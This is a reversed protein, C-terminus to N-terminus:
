DGSPQLRQGPSRCNFKAATSFPPSRPSLTLIEESIATWLDICFLGKAETQNGSIEFKLAHTEIRRVRLSVNFSAHEFQGRSLRRRTSQKLVGHELRYSHCIFFKGPKASRAAETQHRTGSKLTGKSVWDPSARALPRPPPPALAPRAAARGALDTCRGARGLPRGAAFAAGRRGAAARGLM